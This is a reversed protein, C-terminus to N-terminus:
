VGLPVDLFLERVSRQHCRCHGIHYDVDILQRRVVLSIRWVLVVTMLDIRVVFLRLLRLNM